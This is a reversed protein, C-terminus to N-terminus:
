HCSCSGLEHSPEWGNEDTPCSSCARQFRTTGPTLIFFLPVHLLLYAMNFYEDPWIKGTELQKFLENM